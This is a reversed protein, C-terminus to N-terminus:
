CGKSKCETDFAEILEQRMGKDYELSMNGPILRGPRITSYKCDCNDDNSNECNFLLVLLSVIFVNKINRM